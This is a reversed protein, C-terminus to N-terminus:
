IGRWGDEVTARIQGGYRHIGGVAVKADVVAELILCREVLFFAVFLSDNDYGACEMGIYEVKM